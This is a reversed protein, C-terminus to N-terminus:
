KEANLEALKILESKLNALTTDPLNANNLLTIDFFEGVPSDSTENAHTLHESAIGYFRQVFVSLIERKDTKGSMIKNFSEILFTVTAIPSDSILLNVIQKM